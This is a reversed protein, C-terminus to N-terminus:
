SWLGHELIGCVDCQRQVCTAFHMSTSPNETLYESGKLSEFSRTSNKHIQEKNNHHSM